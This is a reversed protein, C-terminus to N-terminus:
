VGDLQGKEYSFQELLAQIEVSELLLDFFYQPDALLTATAMEQPTSGEDVFLSNEGGERQRFSEVAKEWTRRVALSSPIPCSISFAAPM